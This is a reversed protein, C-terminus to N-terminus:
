SRRCGPMTKPWGRISLKSTKTNQEEDVEPLEFPTNARKVNDYLTRRQAQAQLDSYIRLPRVRRPTGLPNAKLVLVSRSPSKSVPFSGFPCHYDYAAKSPVLVV